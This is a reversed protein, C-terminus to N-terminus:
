TATGGRSTELGRRRTRDRARLYVYRGCWCMSSGSSASQRKKFAAPVYRTFHRRLKKSSMGTRILFDRWPWMLTPANPRRSTGRMADVTSRFTKSVSFKSGVYGAPTSIEIEALRLGNAGISAANSKRSSARKQASEQPTPSALRLGNAGIRAANSQPRRGRELAPSAFAFARSKSHRLARSRSRRAPVHEVRVRVDDERPVPGRM